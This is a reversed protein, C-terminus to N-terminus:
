PPFPSSANPDKGEEYGCASPIFTSTNLHILRESVMEDLM